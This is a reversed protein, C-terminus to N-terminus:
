GGGIIQLIELEDGDSLVIGEYQGKPLVEKNHEVVVAKPPVNRQILYEILTTGAALVKTDGNITCTITDSM